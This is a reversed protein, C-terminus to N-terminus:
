IVGVANLAKALETATDNVFEEAEHDRQGHLLEHILTDLGNLPSLDSRVYITRRQQDCLGWAKRDPFSRYPRFRIEWWEGGLKVKADKFEM